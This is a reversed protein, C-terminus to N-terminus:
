YNQILTEPLEIECEFNFLELNSQYIEHTRPVITVRQWIENDKDVLMEVYISNLLGELGIAQSVDLDYAQLTISGVSEKSLIQTLAKQTSYDTFNLRIKPGNKTKRKFIQNVGFLFQDIMGHTNVWRLYIPNNPVCGIEITIKKTIPGAM